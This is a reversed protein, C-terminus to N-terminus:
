GLCKIVLMNAANIHSQKDSINTSVVKNHIYLQKDDSGTQRKKVLKYQRGKHRIFTYILIYAVGSSNGVRTRSKICGFMM